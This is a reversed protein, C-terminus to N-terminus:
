EVSDVGDQFGDNYGSMYTENQAAAIEVNMQDSSYYAKSMRGATANEVLLIMRWEMDALVRANHQAFWIRELWLCISRM